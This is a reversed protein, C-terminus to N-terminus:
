DPLPRQARINLRWYDVLFPPTARAAVRTLEDLFADKLEDSPLRALHAGFIVTKLFTRYADADPFRQPSSELDTHIKEFGVQILRSATADPGAFVWPGPWDGFYPAFHESKMVVAAEARLTAINPGGGCQAIM